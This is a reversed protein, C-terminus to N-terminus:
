CPDAGKKLTLIYYDGISRWPWSGKYTDELKQLFAYCAPHKEAFHEIYSPPVFTCLGELSLTIFSNKLHRRIFAPNYYWCTFPQGEVYAKRGKRSFFRRTATRYKGRLLLLTEWLCFEPLVVITLLGGPKLLSKVDNLVAGLEGTCNLGAFNSFVADYPGKARLLHLSTYSCVEGSVRHQLHHSYVKEQLVKQMGESIDTTHVTHGQKALYIADEGTGSNLELIHSNPLLYRELHERVRKRKYGIITNSAYLEDFVPAQKSFAAAANAEHPAHTTINM